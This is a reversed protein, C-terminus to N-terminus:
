KGAPGRREGTAAPTTAATTTTTGLSAVSARPKTGGCGAAPLVVSFVVAASLVLSAGRTQTSERGPRERRYRRQSLERRLSLRRGTVLRYRSRNGAQLGGHPMSILRIRNRDARLQLLARARRRLGSPARPSSRRRAAGRPCPPRHRTRRRPPAGARLGSSSRRRAHEVAVQRPEVAVLDATREDRPARAAAHQHQGRGVRDLM